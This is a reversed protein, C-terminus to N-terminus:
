INRVSKKKGEDTVFSFDRPQNTSTCLLLILHQRYSPPISFIHTASILYVLFFTFLVIISMQRTDHCVPSYLESHIITHSKIVNILAAVNTNHWNRLKKQQVSFASANLHNKKKTKKGIRSSISQTNSTVGNLAESCRWQLLMKWKLSVMADKKKRLAYMQRDASDKKKNKFTEYKEKKKTNKFIFHNWQM